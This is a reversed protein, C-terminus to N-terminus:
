YANLARRIGESASGGGIKRAKEIYEDALNVSRQLQRACPELPPRGRRVNRVDYENILWRTRETSFTEGFYRERVEKDALALRLLDVSEKVRDNAALEIGLPLVEDEAIACLDIYLKEALELNNM